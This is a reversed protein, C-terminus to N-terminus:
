RSRAEHGSRREDASRIGECRMVLYAIQDDLLEKLPPEIAAAAYPQAM